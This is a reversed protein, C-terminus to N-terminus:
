SCFYVTLCGYYAPAIGDGYHKNDLKAKFEYITKECLRRMLDVM